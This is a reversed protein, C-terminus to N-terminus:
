IGFVHKGIRCTIQRTWVWSTQSVKNPNWFFLAGDTPDQGGLAEFVARYALDNPTMNITGNDVPEFQMSQYVADHVLNPFDPSDIRNLLVAAVAIQGQYPEGRAEAHVLRAMLFIDKLHQRTYIGYPLTYSGAVTPLKPKGVSLLPFEGDKEQGPIYNGSALAAQSPEPIRLRQGPRIRDSILRNVEKIEEASLGFEAAIKWITDGSKSTYEKM